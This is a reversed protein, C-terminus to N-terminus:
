QSYLFPTRRVTFAKSRALPCAAKEDFPLIRSAFPRSPGEPSAFCTELEYGKQGVPKELMGCQIEAVTLSSIFLDEDVQDAISALLAESPEAETVSGIVNTDLLYPSM